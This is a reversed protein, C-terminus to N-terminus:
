ASKRACHLGPQDLRTLYHESNDMAEKNFASLKVVYMKVNLDYEVVYMVVRTTRLLGELVVGVM